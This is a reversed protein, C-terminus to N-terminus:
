SCFYSCRGERTDTQLLPSRSSYNFACACQYIYNYYVLLIIHFRCCYYFLELIIQAV